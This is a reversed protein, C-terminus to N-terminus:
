KTNTMDHTKSFTKGNVVWVDSLDPKGDEGKRCLLYDGNGHPVEPRNAYLVDGRSTQVEVLYNLPLHLAFNSMGKAQTKLKIFSDLIFDEIEVQSGDSKM